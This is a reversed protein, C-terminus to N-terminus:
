DDPALVAVAAVALRLRDQEFRVELAAAIRNVGPKLMNFFRAVLQHEIRDVFLAHKRDVAVRETVDAIQRVAVADVDTEAALDSNIVDGAVEVAVVLVINRQGGLNEQANTRRPHFMLSSTATPAGACISREM